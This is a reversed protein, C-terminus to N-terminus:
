LNMHFKTFCNKCLKIGCKVCFKVPRSLSGEFRRHRQVNRRGINHDLRDYSVDDSVDIKSSSPFIFPSGKLVKKELGLKSITCFCSM